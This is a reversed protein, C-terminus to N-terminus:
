PLPATAAPVAALRVAFLILLLACFAALLSLWAYGAGAMAIGSGVGGIAAAVGMGIEGWSERRFREAVPIDDTLMASGSLVGLNWGAGLLGVAVAMAPVSDAGLAGVITALVLVCGAVASSRVPGTRQILRGSLPAPAFMAGIHLGIILGIGTLGMGHHRLQLPTMTMTAVMVLNALALVLLAPLASRLGNGARVSFEIVAAQRHDDALVATAVVYILAGVLYAGAPGPLSLRGAFWGTPGLLNPGLVAGITTASLVSAMARARDGAPVLDAAAYRGLMVATNGAGLLASGLLILSLASFATGTLLIGCGAFATAAGAALANRRGIRAALWSIAPASAGAGVVLLGQPLGALRDSGTIDAAVLSGSSGALSQALGGLASALWLTALAHKGASSM